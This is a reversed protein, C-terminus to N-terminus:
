LKLKKSEDNNCVKIQQMGVQMDVPDTHQNVMFDLYNKHTPKLAPIEVPASTLPDAFIYISLNDL